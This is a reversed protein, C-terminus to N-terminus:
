HQISISQLEIEIPNNQPQVSSSNFINKWVYKRLYPNICYFNALYIFLIPLPFSDFLLLGLRFITTDTPLNLNMNKIIKFLIILVTIVFTSPDPIHEFEEDIEQDEVENLNDDNYVKM